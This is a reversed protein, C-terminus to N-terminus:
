PIKLPVREWSFLTSSRPNVTLRLYEFEDPATTSGQVIVRTINPVTPTGPHLNHLPSAPHYPNDVVYKHSDGVIMLVPKGFGLAGNGIAAVLPPYANLAATTGDWMDAQLFIVVGKAGNEAAIDFTMQLWDLNAADRTTQEDTQLAQFAPTNWPASWPNTDLNDDNSGPVNLTAFVVKSEMWMVNEVFDSHAPDDAQTLVQKKRGGLTEGAVAFFIERVKALREAPLYDGNNARHCDTWENDGPTYVLPDKLREFQELIFHFYDDACISSGSKIDGVHVVIDV